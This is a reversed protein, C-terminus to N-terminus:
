YLSWAKLKLIFDAIIGIIRQLANGPIVAKVSFRVADHLVMEDDIRYNGRTKQIAIVEMGEGLTIDANEATINEPLVFGDAAEFSVYIYYTRGQKMAGQYPNGSYDTVLVPELGNFCDLKLGESLSQAIADADDSTLGALSPGFSVAVDATQAAFAPLCLLSLMVVSLLLSLAKKMINM